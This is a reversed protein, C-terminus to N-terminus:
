ANLADIVSQIGAAEQQQLIIDEQLGPITVTNIQDINGQLKEIEAPVDEIEDAYYTKGNIKLVETM